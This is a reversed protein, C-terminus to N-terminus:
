TTTGGVTLWDIKVRTLVSMYKKNGRGCAQRRDSELSQRTECDIYVMATNDMRTNFTEHANWFLEM